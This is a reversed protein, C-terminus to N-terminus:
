LTMTEMVAVCGVADIRSSVEDVLVQSIKKSGKAPTGSINRLRRQRCQSTAMTRKNQPSEIEAQPPPPLGVWGGLPGAFVGAPVYV